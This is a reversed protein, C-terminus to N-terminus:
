DRKKFDEETVLKKLDDPPYRETTTINEDLVKKVAQDARENGSIVVHSPVWQLTTRFGEHDLMKRITQTRPNKTSTRNEAAM